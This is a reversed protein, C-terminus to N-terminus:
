IIQDLLKELAVGRSGKILIASKEIQLLAKDKELDVRSEYFHFEPYNLKHIPQTLVSM